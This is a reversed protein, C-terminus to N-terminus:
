SRKNVSRDGGDQGADRDEEREGCKGLLLAERSDAGQRVKVVFV